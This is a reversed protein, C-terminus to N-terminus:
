FFLQERRRFFSGMTLGLALGGLHAQWAVNPFLSVILFGGIVAAWLPLPAPIPFVFVRLKPRMVALAGGVAFVAGSAGIAISLPPGLFIYFINGLIGGIFYVVLFKKQGVLACLYSGFFYLTIMNALIHGISGHLFINTVVTWPRDLIGAPMLGLFFILAPVILTVVFLLLNLGILVWIPTLNLGRHNRYM